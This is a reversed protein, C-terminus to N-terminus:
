KGAYLAVVLISGAMLLACVIAVIRVFLKQRKNM